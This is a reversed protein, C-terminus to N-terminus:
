KAGDPPTSVSQVAGRVEYRETVLELSAGPTVLQGRYRWGERSRDLGLDLTVLRGNVGTVVAARDDFLADRDKVAILGAAGEPDILMRVVARVPPTTPLLQNVSFGIAEIGPMVVTVPAQSGGVLQGGITCPEQGTRFDAGLPDCSLTIVVPREVRGAIAEDAAVGGLLLRSTAPRTPGIAVLTHSGPSEPPFTRGAELTAALDPALNTLWGVARIKRSTPADVQVAAAARAVEQVGDFLVLDHAGPPMPGVLVDASNPNEFVFALAPSGDISARLMPNFGTGKVKLKAALLSAGSMIRREENTIDVKTVSDIRPRAPRFLLATGYAAPILVVVFVAVAADVLNIRGFLRGERDIWAM